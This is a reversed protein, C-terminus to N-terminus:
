YERQWLDRKGTLFYILGFIAALNLLLFTYALGLPKISRNQKALLAGLAMSAYLPVQITLCVQFFFQWAGSTLALAWNSFLLAILFAPAALRLLKHSYFQLVLANDPWLLRPMLQCLQYNGTLTRVKRSFERKRLPDISDYACANEEFVVRFGALAIRLPTYVDDLITGAPLPEWLRRRIAYIAGTAGVVSGARGESKRILKEYRWYLGLGEMAGSEGLLLSGSVAGVTPDAFNSVLQRIAERDFRQRADAFVVIEGGSSAIGRNLAEAKGLRPYYSLVKVSSSAMKQAKAVTQDTSGDSVVIVELKERPYDSALLNAIRSVVRGAENYCALVVTVRPYIASKIVPRPRFRAILFVVLPYGAYNYLIAAASFWFLLQIM